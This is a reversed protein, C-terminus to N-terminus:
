MPLFINSNFDESQSPEVGDSTKIASSM